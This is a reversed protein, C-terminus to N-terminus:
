KKKKSEKQAEQSNKVGRDNGKNAQNVEEEALEGFAKHIELMGANNLFRGLSLDTFVSAPRLEITVDAYLPVMKGEKSTPDKCLQRSVNVTINKIVLNDITYYGGMMLRLTGVQQVDINRNISKFGGPPNQWGVYENVFKGLAEQAKKSETIKGIATEVDKKSAKEFQGMCYPYIYALQDYVSMFHYKTDRPHWKKWDSLLTFKMSMTGFNTSTGNYMSYRTGQIYLAKNLASEAVGAVKKVTEAGSTLFNVATSGFGASEKLNAKELGRALSGLMPAYPKASNFANELFNGGSWDSWENNISFNFDENFICSCIPEAYYKSHPGDNLPPLMGKHDGSNKSCYGNTFFDSWEDDFHKDPKEVGMIGKLIADSASNNVAEEGEKWEIKNGNLIPRTNPHLTM